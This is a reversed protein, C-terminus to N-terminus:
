DSHNGTSRAAIKSDKGLSQPDRIMRRHQEGHVPVTATESQYYGIEHSLERAAEVVARALLPIKEDTMRFAPGAISVAAVVEGTYDRVPAGICKLGEEFEENDISYGRQRIVELEAKLQSPTTVTNRTFSPLGCKHIIEDVMDASLFALLAKGAGGAHPPYRRGIISPVRVTKQAEFKGLYLVEHEDIICLHATEGTDFALKQLYRHALEPIKMQATTKGAMEFFKLGLRYGGLGNKRVMRHRELVTLLRHVTSRHMRATESLQQLTPGRECDAIYSLLSFARDLVQVRYRTESNSTQTSPKM